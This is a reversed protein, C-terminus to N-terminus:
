DLSIHTQWPSIPNESTVQLMTSLYGSITTPDEALKLLSNGLLEGVQRLGKVEDKRLCRKLTDVAKQCNDLISTPRELLAVVQQSNNTKNRKVAMVTRRAGIHRRARLLKLELNELGSVSRDFRLASFEAHMAQKGAAWLAMPLVQYYMLEIAYFARLHQTAENPYSHSALDEIGSWIDDDTLINFLLLDDKGPERV